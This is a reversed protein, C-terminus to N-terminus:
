HRHADLAFRGHKMGARSARMIIQCDRRRRRNEASYPMPALAADLKLRAGDDTPEIRADFAAGTYDFSFSLAEPAHHIPHGDPGITITGVEVPLPHNALFSLSASKIM